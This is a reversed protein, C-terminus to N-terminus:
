SRITFLVQLLSARLLREPPISPRGEGSYVADFQNDMQKLICDVLTKLHRLAHNAPVREELDIYSFLRQQSHEIGRM